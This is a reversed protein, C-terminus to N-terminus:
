LSASPSRARVLKTRRMMLRSSFTSAAVGSGDPIFSVVTGPELLLPAPMLIDPTQVGGSDPWFALAAPTVLRMLSGNDATGSRYDEPPTFTIRSVLNDGTIRFIMAWDLWIRQDAPVTFIEVPDTNAAPISASLNIEFWSFFAWEPHTLAIVCGQLEQIGEAGPQYNSLIDSLAGDLNRLEGRVVM